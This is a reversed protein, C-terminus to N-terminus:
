GRDFTGFGSVKGPLSADPSGLRGVGDILESVTGFLRVKGPTVGPVFCGAFLAFRAEEFSRSFAQWEHGFNERRGKHQQPIPISDLGQMYLTVM